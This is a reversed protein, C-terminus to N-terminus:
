RQMEHFFFLTLMANVVMKQHMATFVSARALKREQTMAMISCILVGAVDVHLFLSGLLWQESCRVM